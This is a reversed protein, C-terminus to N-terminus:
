ALWLDRAWLLGKFLAAMGRDQFHHSFFEPSLITQQFISGLLRLKQLRFILLSISLIRMASRDAPYLFILVVEELYFLFDCVHLVFPQKHGGPERPCQKPKPKSTFYFHRKLFPMMHSKRRWPIESLQVLRPPLLLLFGPFIHFHYSFFEQSLTQDPPIYFIGLYQELVCACLVFQPSDGRSICWSLPLVIQPILNLRRTADAVKVGAESPVNNLPSGTVRHYNRGDCKLNCIKCFTFIPINKSM